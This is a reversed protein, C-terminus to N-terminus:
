ETKEDRVIGIVDDWFQRDAKGVVKDATRMDIQLEYRKSADLGFGILLGGVIMLFISLGLLAPIFLGIALLVCSIVLLLSAFAQRGNQVSTALTMTNGSAEFLTERELTNLHDIVEQLRPHVWSNVHGCQPCHSADTSIENSCAPCAILESTSTMNM